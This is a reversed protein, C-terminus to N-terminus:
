GPYEARVLTRLARFFGIWADKLKTNVIHLANKDKEDLAQQLEPGLAEYEEMAQNLRTTNFHYKELMGIMGNGKDVLLTHAKIRFNGHMGWLENKLDEKADTHSLNFRHINGQFAAASPFAMGAVLSIGFLAIILQAWKMTNTVERREPFV